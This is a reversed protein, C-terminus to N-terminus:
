LFYGAIALLYQKEPKAYKAMSCENAREISWSNVNDSEDDQWTRLFCVQLVWIRVQKVEGLCLLTSDM